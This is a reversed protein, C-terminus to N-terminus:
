KLELYHPLVNNWFQKSGPPGNELLQKSQVPTKFRQVECEKGKGETNTTFKKPYTKDKDYKVSGKIRSVKNSEKGEGQRGQRESEEDGTEQYKGEEENGEEEEEEEGRWM